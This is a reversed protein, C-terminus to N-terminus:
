ANLILSLLAARVIRGNQVEKFYRAQPTSDVDQRIEDIRPLPHMIIADSKMKSVQDANIFYSGKVKGYEQEDPFRERQIRTM